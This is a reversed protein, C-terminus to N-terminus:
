AERGPPHLGQEALRAKAAKVAEDFTLPKEGFGAAQHKTTTSTGGSGAGKVKTELKKLAAQVARSELVEPPVSIRYLKVPDNVLSPHAQINAKMDDEYQRWDPCSDDLLKELNNKRLNQVEGIVPTLRELLRHEIAQGIKETVEQWTKPEWGEGAGAAPGGGEAAVAAAEARSLRYGLRAAMQQIQGLPDRSFADYAEIKSKDKSLADMKKGFARQMEKYAPQLEPPLATPDFFTPEEPTGTGSPPPVTKGPTAAASKGEGAKPAAGTTGAGPTGEGAQGAPTGTGTPNGEDVAM